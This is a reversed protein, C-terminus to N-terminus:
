SSALDVISVLELHTVGLFCVILGTRATLIMQNMRVSYNPSLHSEEKIERSSFSNKRVIPKLVADWIRLYYCLNIVEKGVVTFALLWPAENGVNM